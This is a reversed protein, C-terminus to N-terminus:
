ESKTTDFHGPGKSVKSMIFSKYLKTKEKISIKEKELIESNM